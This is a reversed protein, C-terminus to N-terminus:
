VIFLGDNGSVFMVSRKEICVKHTQQGNNCPEGYKSIELFIEARPAIQALVLCKQRKQAELHWEM